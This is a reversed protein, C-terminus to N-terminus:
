GTRPLRAFGEAEALAALAAVRLESRALLYGRVQVADGVEFDARAQAAFGRARAAAVHAALRAPDAEEPHRALYARGVAAAGPGLPPLLAGPGRPRARAARLGPVLWALAGLGGLALLARRRLTPIM